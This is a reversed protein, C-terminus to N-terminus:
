YFEGYELARLPKFFVNPWMEHRGNERKLPCGIFSLRFPPSVKGFLLGCRRNIPMASLSITANQLKASLLLKLYEAEDYKGWFIANRGLHVIENHFESENIFDVIASKDMGNSVFLVDKRALDGQWWDPLAAREELYEERSIVAFPISFDYNLDLLRAIKSICNEPSLASSFFLNGSNIYSDVKEFGEDLLKKKLESMIVKNKGGVNIGRLLLVYVM